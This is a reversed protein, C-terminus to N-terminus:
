GLVGFVYVKGVVARVDDARTEHDLARMNIVGILLLYEDFFQAGYAVCGREIHGYKVWKEYKEIM